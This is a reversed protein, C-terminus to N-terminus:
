LRPNIEFGYKAMEEERARHGLNAVGKALTLHTRGSAGLLGCPYCGGNGWGGLRGWRQYYSSSERWLWFGGWVPWVQAKM